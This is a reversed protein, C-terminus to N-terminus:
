NFVLNLTLNTGTSTCAADITTATAQQPSPSNFTVGTGATSVIMTADPRMANVIDRCLGPDPQVALQFSSGSVTTNTPGPVWTSPTVDLTTGGAQFRTASSDWLDDLASTAAKLNANSVAAYGTPNNGYLRRVEAAVRRADSIIAESRSRQLLQNGFAAVLGLVGLSVAIVITLELLSFGRVRKM